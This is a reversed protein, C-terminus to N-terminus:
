YVPKLESIEYAGTCSLHGDVRRAVLVERTSLYSGCTHWFRELPEVGTQSPDDHLKFFGDLLRRAAEFDNRLTLM